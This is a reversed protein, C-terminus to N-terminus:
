LAAMRKGEREWVWMAMTRRVAERLDREYSNAWVHRDTSGEILQATIRVRDGSRQVTGEPLSKDTKKYRMISTRSIVKISGLQALGTILANTMGDSFYEQNADGSLNALPLVMLSAIPPAAPKTRGLYLYSAAVLIAVIVVGATVLARPLLQRQPAPVAATAIAAGMGSAKQEDGTVPAM